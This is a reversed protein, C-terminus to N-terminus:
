ATFTIAGAVKITLTAMKLSGITRTPGDFGTVFGSFAETAAGTDNNTVTITEKAAIVPPFGDAEDWFFEATYEGGDALDNPDFTHYGGSTGLHSTQLAGRSVNPGAVSLYDPSWAVTTGFGLTTGLGTKPM